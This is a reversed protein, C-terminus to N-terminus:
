QLTVMIEILGTGSQLPELAKGLVMGIGVDTGRMAHGPTAATVLLDGAAIPGNEASAKCPVIGMVALPIEDIERALDLVPTNPDQGPRLEREVADWDRNSAVHGPQTSYVGAVRTSRARASRAFGRRAQPDIVMVDGAEVSAAGAGVKVIEAFDAGGGYFAGDATVDGDRFVRFEVDTNRIAEIFRSSTSADAHHYLELIKSGASGPLIQRLKAV